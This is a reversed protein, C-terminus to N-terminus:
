NLCRLETWSTSTSRFVQINELASHSSLCSVCVLLVTWTIWPPFPTSLTTCHALHVATEQSSPGGPQSCICSQASSVERCPLTHHRTPQPQKKGETTRAPCGDPGRFSSPSKDWVTDSERALKLLIVELPCRCRRLELLKSWPHKHAGSVQNSDSPECTNGFEPRAAPWGLALVRSALTPLFSLNSEPPWCGPALPPNMDM